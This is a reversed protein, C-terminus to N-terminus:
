IFTQNSNLQSCFSDRIISHNFICTYLYLDFRPLQALRPVDDPRHDPSWLSASIVRQALYSRIEVRFENKIWSANISLDSSLFSFLVFLLGTAAVKKNQIQRIDSSCEFKACREFIFSSCTPFFLPVVRDSLPNPTVPKEPVPVIQIEVIILRLLPNISNEIGFVFSRWNRCEANHNFTSGRLRCNTSGRGRKLM